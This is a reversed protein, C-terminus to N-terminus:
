GYRMRHISKKAKGKRGPAFVWHHFYSNMLGRRTRGRCMEWREGARHLSARRIDSQSGGQCWVSGFLLECGDKGKGSASLVCRCSGVWERQDPPQLVYTGFSSFSSTKGAESQRTRGPLPLPSLPRTAGGTGSGSRTEKRGGLKWWQHRYKFLWRRSNFPFRKKSTQSVGCMRATCKQAVGWHCSSVWVAVQAPTIVSFSQYTKVFVLGM